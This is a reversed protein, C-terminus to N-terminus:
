LKLTGLRQYLCRRRCSWEDATLLLKVGSNILVLILLCMLFIELKIFDINKINLKKATVHNPTQHNNYIFLKRDHVWLHLKNVM